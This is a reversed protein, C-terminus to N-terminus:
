KTQPEPGRQGRNNRFLAPVRLAEIRYPRPKRTVNTAGSESTIPGSWHTVHSCSKFTLSAMNFSSM